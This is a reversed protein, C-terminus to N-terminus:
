VSVGFLKTIGECVKPSQIKLNVCYMYITKTIEENSKGVQIYHQLLGAGSIYFCIDHCESKTQMCDVTVQGALRVRFRPCSAPKSKM